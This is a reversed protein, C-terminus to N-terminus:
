PEAPRFHAIDMITSTPTEAFEAKVRLGVKMGSLPIGEVIHPIPTDAGDLKILALIYPPKAPQHPEQYRVITFGTVIGTSGLEVWNESIDSRCRECISRPPIFTRRCKECRVGLIKEEDRLAILFRSGLRGAFYQYPLAIKGEIVFNDQNEASM